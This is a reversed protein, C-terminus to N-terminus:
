LTFKNQYESIDFEQKNTKLYPKHDEEKFFITMSGGAKIYGEKKFINILEQSFLFYRWENEGCRIALIYRVYNDLNKAFPKASIQPRACLSSDLTTSKVQVYYLIQNKTAVIDIGDDIAMSCVNYGQLLLESSVAMEGARGLDRSEIKETCPIPLKGKPRIKKMKYFTTKPKHTFQGNKVGAMLINAIDKKLLEDSVGCFDPDITRIREIINSVTLGKAPVKQAFAKKIIDISATKM